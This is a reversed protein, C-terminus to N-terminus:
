RKKRRGPRYGTGGSAPRSQRRKGPKGSKNRQEGGGSAKGGTKVPQTHVYEGRFARNAEKRRKELAEKTERELAAREKALAQRDWYQLLDNPVYPDYPDTIEDLDPVEDYHQEQKRM